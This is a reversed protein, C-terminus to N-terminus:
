IWSAWVSEGYACSILVLPLLINYSLNNADYRHITHDRVMAVSIITGRGPNGVMNTDWTDRM